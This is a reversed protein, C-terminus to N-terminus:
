EARVVEEGVCLGVNPRALASMVIVQFLLVDVVSLSLAELAFILVLEDHLEGLHHRLDVLLDLPTEGSSLITGLAPLVLVLVDILGLHVGGLLISGVQFNVLELGFNVEVVLICLLETLFALNLFSFSDHCFHVLELLLLRLEFGNDIVRNLLFVFVHLNTFDATSQLGGAVCVLSEGHMQLAFQM